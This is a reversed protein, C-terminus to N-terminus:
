HVTPQTQIPASIAADLSEEMNVVTTVSMVSYLLNDYDAEIMFSQFHKVTRYQLCVDHHQPLKYKAMVHEVIAFVEQPTVNGQHQDSEQANQYVWEGYVGFRTLRIEKLVRPSKPTVFTTIPM